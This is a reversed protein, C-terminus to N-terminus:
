YKIKPSLKYKYKNILETKSGLLKKNNHIM